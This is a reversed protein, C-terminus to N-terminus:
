KGQGCCKHFRDPGEELLLVHVHADVGRGTDEGGLPDAEQLEVLHHLTAPDHIVGDARVPEPQVQAVM